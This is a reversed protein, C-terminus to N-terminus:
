TRAELPVCRASLKRMAQKCEFELTVPPMIGDAWLAHFRTFPSEPNAALSRKLRDGGPEFPSHTM